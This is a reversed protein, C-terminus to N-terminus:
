APHRTRILDAVAQAGTARRALHDALELMVAPNIRYEQGAEAAAKIRQVARNQGRGDVSWGLLAATPQQWNEGYLARGAAAFLEADTM